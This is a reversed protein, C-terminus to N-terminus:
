AGKDGLHNNNLDLHVINQATDLLLVDRLGEAFNWGLNMQNFTMRGHICNNYAFQEFREELSSKNLGKRQVFKLDKCKADYLIKAQVSSICSSRNEVHNKDIQVLASGVKKGKVYIDKFLRSQELLYRSAALDTGGELIHQELNDQLYDRLDVTVKNNYAPVPREKTVRAATIFPGGKSGYMSSADSMLEGAPGAHVPKNIQSLTDITQMIKNTADRHIQMDQQNDEEPWAVTGKSPTMFSKDCPLVHTNSRTCYSM